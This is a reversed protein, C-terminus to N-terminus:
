HFKRSSTQLKKTRTQLNVLNLMRIEGAGDPLNGPNRGPPPAPNQATVQQQQM